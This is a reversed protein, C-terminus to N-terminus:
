LYQSLEDIFREISLYYIDNKSLRSKVLVKNDKIINKLDNENDFYICKKKLSSTFKKIYSNNTLLVSNSALTEFTRSTLGTQNPHVIDLVFKSQSFIKHVQRKSISNYNIIKFMNRLSKDFLSRFLILYLNHYYIYLKFKIGEKQFQCFINQILKSRNSHLTGVFSLDFKKKYNTNKFFIKESYLNILPLNFKESDAFDFTLFVDVIKYYRHFIPKNRFSDWAYLVIKIDYRKIVKLFYIPCMEPNILLLTNIKNLRIINLIRFYYFLNNFFFIFKLNLRILIKIILNNSFFDNKKTVKFKKNLEFSIQDVYNFFAPGIIIIKKKKM